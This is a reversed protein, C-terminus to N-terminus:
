ASAFLLQPLARVLAAFDLPKVWRPVESYEPPIAAQDYGTTFVFPTHRRRLAAAVPFIMAGHLNIDLIAADICAEDQVVRLAEQTDGIPGLVETGAKRLINALDDALFYEDEAVLIRRGALTRTQDVTM